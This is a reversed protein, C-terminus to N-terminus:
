TRTKVNDFNNYLLQDKGELSVQRIETKSVYIITGDDQITFAFVPKSTNIKSYTGNGNVGLIYRHPTYKTTFNTTKQEMLSFYQNDNKEVLKYPFNITYDTESKTTFFLNNM